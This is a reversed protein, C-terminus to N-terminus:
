QYRKRSIKFGEFSALNRNLDSVFLQYTPGFLNLVPIINKLVKIAAALEEDSISDGSKLKALAIAALQEETQNEQFKFDLKVGCRSAMQSLAAVNSDPNQLAEGLSVLAKGLNEPDQMKKSM